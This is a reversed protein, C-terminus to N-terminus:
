EITTEPPASEGINTLVLTSWYMSKIYRHLLNRHIGNLQPYVWVNSGFGETKSIIYFICSNWHLVLFMMNLWFIGRVLNPFNTVAEVVKKAQFINLFKLLRPLRYVPRVKDFIYFVDFPALSIADILFKKSRVYTVMVKRSDRVYIGNQLFSIHSSIFVDSLYVLDATYDLFFWLTQFEKAEPYAARFIVM